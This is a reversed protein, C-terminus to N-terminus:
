VQKGENIVVVLIKAECDIAQMTHPTVADFYVSDGESILVEHKDHLLKYKGSICYHFEQGFHSNRHSIDYEPEVTVLLPECMRNSYGFALAKYHYGDTYQVDIGRDKRVVFYSSVKERGGTLLETVSISLTKSADLLVSIPIDVTGSEFLDYEAASIKMNSCMAEKSFGAIERMERLRQAILKINKDM